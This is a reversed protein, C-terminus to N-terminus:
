THSALLSVLKVTITFFLERICNYIAQSSSVTVTNLYESNGIVLAVRNM